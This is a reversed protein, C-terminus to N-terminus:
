ILQAIHCLFLHRTQMVSMSHHTSLSLGLFVGATALGVQPLLQSHEANDALHALALVNLQAFTVNWKEQGLVADVSQVTFDKRGLLVADTLDLQAPM